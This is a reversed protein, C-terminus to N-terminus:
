RQGLRVASSRLGRSTCTPLSGFTRTRAALIVGLGADRQEAAPGNETSSDSIQKAALLDLLHEYKVPCRPVSTETSATTWARSAMSKAHWVMAKFTMNLGGRERFRKAVFKSLLAPGDLYLPEGFPGGTPRSWTGRSASASSSAPAPKDLTGYSLEPADLRADTSHPPRGYNGICFYQPLTSAALYLSGMTQLTLTLGAVDNLHNLADAWHLGSVRTRLCVPGPGRSPPSSVQPHSCSCSLSIKDAWRCSLVRSTPSSIFDEYSMATFYYPSRSQQVPVPRDDLLKSLEVSCGAVSDKTIIRVAGQRYPRSRGVSRM